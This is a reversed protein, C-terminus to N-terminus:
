RSPNLSCYGSTASLKVFIFGTLLSYWAGTTTAQVLLQRSRVYQIVM